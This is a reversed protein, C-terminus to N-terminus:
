WAGGEGTNNLTREDDHRGNSLSTVCQYRVDLYKIVGECPNGWVSNLAKLTCNMKGQCERKAIALSTKSKCNTTIYKRAGQCPVDSTRGYNAYGIKISKGPPCAIEKQYHECIIEGSEELSGIASFFLASKFAFSYGHEVKQLLALYYLTKHSENYNARRWLHCCPNLDAVSVSSWHFSWTALLFSKRIFIELRTDIDLSKRHCGKEKGVKCWYYNSSEIHRYILFLLIWFMYIKSLHEVWLVFFISLWQIPIM